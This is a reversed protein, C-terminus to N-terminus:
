GKGLKSALYRNLTDGQVTHPNPALLAALGPSNVIGQGPIPAGGLGGITGIAGPPRFDAGPARPAPITATGTTGTTAAAGGGGAGGAGGGFIPNGNADYGVFTQGSAIANSIANQRATEIADAESQAENQRETVLGQLIQTLAQRVNDQATAQNGLYSRGEAGLDNGRASSFYLNQANDNQDIAGVNGAHTHALNAAASFPNQEAALATAKDGTAPNELSGFQASNALDAFGAAILAQKRAADATAVASGYNNANLARIKQVIPDTSLDFAGQTPAGAPPTADKPATPPKAATQTLTNQGNAITRGIADPPPPAPNLKAYADAPSLAAAHQPNLQTYGAYPPTVPKLGRTAAPLKASSYQVGQM